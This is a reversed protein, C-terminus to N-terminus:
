WAKPKGNRGIWRDAIGAVTAAEKDPMGALSVEKSFHDKIQCIWAMEGDMNSRFDMLDIQVRHM